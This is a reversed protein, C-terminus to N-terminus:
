THKRMGCVYVAQPTIQDQVMWSKSAAAEILGELDMRTRNDDVVREPCPHMNNHKEIPIKELM